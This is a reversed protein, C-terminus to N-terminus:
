FIIERRELVSRELLDIIERTSQKLEALHHYINSNYDQIMGRSYDHSRPVSSEEVLLSDSNYCFLNQLM